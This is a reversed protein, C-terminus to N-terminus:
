KQFYIIKPSPQGIGLKQYLKTYQINNPAQHAVPPANKIFLIPPDSHTLVKGQTSYLHFWECFECGSPLTGYQVMIYPTGNRAKACALGMATYDKMGRPKKLKLRSGDARQLMLDTQTCDKSTRSCQIAVKVEGCDISLKGSDGSSPPSDAWCNTGIGWLLLAPFIIRSSFKLRKMFKSERLPMVGPTIGPPLMAGIQAVSTNHSTLLDDNM